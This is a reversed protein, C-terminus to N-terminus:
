SLLRAEDDLVFEGFSIRLAAEWDASLKGEFARWEL